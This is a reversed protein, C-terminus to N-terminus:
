WKWNETLNKNKDKIGQIGYAYYSLNESLQLM